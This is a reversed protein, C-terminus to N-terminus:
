KASWSAVIRAMLGTLQLRSWWDNPYVGGRASKIRNCAANWDLENKTAVLSAMEDDTLNPNEM